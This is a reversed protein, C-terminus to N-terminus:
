RTPLRRAPLVILPTGDGLGLDAVTRHEDLVPAGRHKVIYGAPDLTRGTADFLARAKVDGLTTGSPVSLTVTDWVDTVTIRLRVGTAVTV